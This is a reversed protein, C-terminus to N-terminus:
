KEKHLLVTGWVWYIAGVFWFVSVFLTLWLNQKRCPYSYYNIWYAVPIVSDYIAIAEIM